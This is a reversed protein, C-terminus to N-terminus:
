LPIQIDLKSGKEKSRDFIFTGGIAHIRSEANALGSGKNGKDEGMGVGDDTYRISLHKEDRHFVISVIRAQSHKKMNVLLEKLVRLTAVKKIGSIDTWVQPSLGRVIINTQENSFSSLMRKLDDVYEETSNYGSKEQSIDRASQYIAELDNIILPLDASKNELQIMAGYVDNALEDHIRKSIRSETEHVKQQKEKTHKTRQFYYILMFLLGLIVSFVIWREMKLKSIEARKIESEKEYRLAAYQDRSRKQFDAISDKIYAYEVLDLDNKLGIKLELAAERQNFNNTNTSIAYAKNAYDLSQEPDREKFYKSLHYYSTFVGNIHNIEERIKLAIMMNELGLPDNVKSRAFGLNDLSRAIKVKDNTKLNYQYVKILEEIALNYKKENILVVAKNNSISNREEADESLEFARNYFELSKSYNGQVDYLMGLHNYIAIRSIPDTKDIGIQDSLELAQISTKESEYFAGLKYQTGAIYILDIIAASVDKNKLHKMKSRDFYTYAKALDSNTAPQIMREYHYATSDTFQQAEAVDNFVSYVLVFLFLFSLNKKM